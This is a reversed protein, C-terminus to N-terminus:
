LWLLEELVEKELKEICVNSAELKEAVTLLKKQTQSHLFKAQAQCLTWGLSSNIGSTDSRIYSRVLSFCLKLSPLHTEDTGALKGFWCSRSTIRHLLASSAQSHSM